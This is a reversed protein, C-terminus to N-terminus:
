GDVFVRGYEEEEEEGSTGGLLRRRFFERRVGRQGEAEAPEGRGYEMGVAKAEAEAAQVEEVAPAAAAAKEVAPNEAAVEVVAPAGAAGEEAEAAPAEGASKEERAARVEQLVEELPRLDQPGKKPAGERGAAADAYSRGGEKGPCDRHEHGEQGCSHCKRPKPCAAAMHGRKGCNRCVGQGCSGAMHGFQRCQRCFLPQRSYFLYGRDPGIAFYALPHELGDFGDPDENLLVRFQRKGTWIGDEDRLYRVGSQVKGYRSLFGAVMEDSVYPNYLHTTVVKFSRRELSEVNFSCLPEEDEAEKCRRMAAKFAVGSVFTVDFGRVALNVLMCFVGVPDVKVVGRLVKRVFEGRPMM